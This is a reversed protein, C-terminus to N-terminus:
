NQLKLRLLGSVVTQMAKLIVLMVLVAEPSWSNTLLRMPLLLLVAFEFNM